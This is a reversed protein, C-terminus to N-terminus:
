SVSQLILEASLICIPKGVYKTLGNYLNQIKNLWRFYTITSHVVTSNAGSLLQWKKVILAALNDCVQCVVIQWILAM